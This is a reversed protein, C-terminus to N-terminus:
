RQPPSTGREGLGDMLRGAIHPWDFNRQYLRKGEAAMSAAQAHDAAIDAVASAFADVNQVAVLRLARGDAERLIRDTASGWTAVVPLGHSLGAMLASRRTSVGEDIPVVYVDAAQLRASVEAPELGVGGIVRCRASTRVAELDEASAGTYLVV